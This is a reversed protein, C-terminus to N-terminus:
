QAGPTTAPAKPPLVRTPEMSPMEHMLTSGDAAIEKYIKQVESSNERIEGFADNFATLPPVERRAVYGEYIHNVRELRADGDVGDLLADMAASAYRTLAVPPLAARAINMAFRVFPDQLANNFKNFFGRM